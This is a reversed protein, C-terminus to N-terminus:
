NVIKKVEVKKFKNPKIINTIMKVQKATVINTTSDLNGVVIVKQGSVLDSVTSVKGDKSYMTSSDIKIEVSSTTKTKMNKVDVTFGTSTLASVTGIM